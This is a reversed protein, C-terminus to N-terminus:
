RDAEDLIIVKHRGKPLTVKKQAFTKIKNRVVDIGRSFFYVFEDDNFQSRVWIASVPNGKVTWLSTPIPIMWDVIPALNTSCFAIGEWSKVFCNHNLAKSMLACCNETLSRFIFGCEEASLVLAQTRHVLGSPWSLGCFQLSYNVQVHTQIAKLFLEAASHEGM